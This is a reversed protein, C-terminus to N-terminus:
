IGISDTYTVSDLDGSRPTGLAPPHATQKTHGGLVTAQYDVISISSVVVKNHTVHM